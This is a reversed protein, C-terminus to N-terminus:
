RINKADGLLCPATMLMIYCDFWFSSRNVYEMDLRVRERVLEKTHVPGRSGNIQAWGTIGPKVRHRHAYDGVISQVSLEEATMGVAHPRPGVISMEGKLVNFLQPLEDISTRRILRGIRTIRPDEALTQQSMYEAAAPDDRMSRFKWVRIIQNNFGHRRQRFFVPGKSELKIAVALILFLPSFAVLMASAFILDSIRKTIARRSDRPSGSVYAAPSHAIEALSETEPDFGELDLLLVVRQPLIRLRDVLSRVRDRADSTVTVVIRDIEPLREWTLLDDLRGLLPAGGVDKPARSLRDDFIGVINLERTEANRAILRRANATAGVIVVNESIWGARVLHRTFVLVHAHLGILTLWTVLAALIPWRAGSGQYLFYTILGLAALALGAGNATRLLHHVIGKQLGFQYASASQLGFSATVPILVFPLIQSVSASLINAGSLDLFYWALASALLIDLWKLSKRILATTVPLRRSPLRASEINVTDNAAIRLRKAAVPATTEQTPLAGTIDRKLGTTM